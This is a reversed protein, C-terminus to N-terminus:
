CGDEPTPSGLPRSSRADLCQQAKLKLEDVTAKAQAYGGTTAPITAQVKDRWSVPLDGLAISTSLVLRSTAIGAVDGPLGQYIAVAGHFEGVYYQHSVYAWLGGGTGGLVVVIALVILLLGKRSRKEKPRRKGTAGLDADLDEAGPKLGALTRTVKADAAAGILGSTAYRTVLAAEDEPMAVTPEPADAPPPAGGAAEPLEVVDGLTITINDTGGAAEALHLLAAMAEGAHPLALVTAITDDDILGTLGDSCFMVRDNAELDVAFLDPAIEAQGNLVKLLLSRHPHTMAEHDDLKGNDILSQVYSHDHTLRHLTGDRYLYGRSDGLHVVDLQTGDILGACVTTGMGDLDPNTAILGAIRRNARQLSARLQAAADEGAALEDAHRLERAAIASAVDGAAAGGMGDAVLLMTGSVYGSDQNTRRVLGVESYALPRFRYM